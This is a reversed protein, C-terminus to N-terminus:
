ISVSTGNSLGQKLLEFRSEAATKLENLRQGFEKKQENPVHRIEAFLPKIINKTGLYKIRWQELGDLSLVESSEIEALVQDVKEFIASM